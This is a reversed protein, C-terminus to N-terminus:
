VQEKDDVDAGLLRFANIRSIEFESCALEAGYEDDLKVTGYATNQEDDLTIRMCGGVTIGHGDMRDPLITEYDRYGQGEGGVRYFDM